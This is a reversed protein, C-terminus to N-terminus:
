SLIEPISRFKEGVATSNTVAALPARLAAVAAAVAADDAVPNATDSGGLLVPRGTCSQLNGALDWRTFLSGLYSRPPFSPPALPPARRTSPPWAVLTLCTAAPAVNADCGPLARALPADRAAGSSARWSGCRCCVFPQLFQWGPSHIWCGGVSLGM